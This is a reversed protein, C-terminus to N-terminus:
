RISSAPNKIKSRSPKPKFAKAKRPSREARAPKVYVGNRVDGFHRKGNSNLCPHNGVNGNLVPNLVVLRSILADYYADDKFCGSQTANRDCIRQPRASLKKNETPNNSYYYWSKQVVADGQNQLIKEARLGLTELKQLQYPKLFQIDTIIEGLVTSDHVYPPIYVDSSPEDLAKCYYPNPKATVGGGTMSNVQGIKKGTPWSKGDGVNIYDPKPISAWKPIEPKYGGQGDPVLISPDDDIEEVELEYTYNTEIKRFVFTGKPKSEILDVETPPEVELNYNGFTHPIKRFIFHRPVYMANNQLLAQYNIYGLNYLAKGWAPTLELLDDGSSGWSPGRFMAFIDAGSLSPNDLAIQAMSVRGWNPDYTDNVHNSSSSTQCKKDDCHSPIKSVDVGSWRAIKERYYSIATSPSAFISESIGPLQKTFGSVADRLPNHRRIVYYKTDVPVWFGDPRCIKQPTNPSVHTTFSVGVDFADDPLATAIDQKLDSTSFRIVSKNEFNSISLTWGGSECHYTRVEDPVQCESCVAQAPSSLGSLFVCAILSGILTLKNSIRM